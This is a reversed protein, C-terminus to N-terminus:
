WLVIGVLQLNNPVTVNCVRIKPRHAAFSDSEKSVSLCTCCFCVCVYSITGVFNMYLFTPPEFVLLKDLILVKFDFTDFLLHLSQHIQWGFGRCIITQYLKSVILLVIFLKSYVHLFLCVLM